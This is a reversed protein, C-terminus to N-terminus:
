LQVANKILKGAKAEALGELVQRKAESNEHIWLEREPIVSAKKFIFEGPEIEEVLFLQSAFRVGLNLRGKSDAQLTHEM